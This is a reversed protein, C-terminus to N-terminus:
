DTSQRALGYPKAYLAAQSSGNRKFGFSLYDPDSGGFHKNLLSQFFELKGSEAGIQGSIWKELGIRNLEMFAHCCLDAKFRYPMLDIRENELLFDYSITISQDEFEQFEHCINNLIAKLRPAAASSVKPMIDTVSAPTPDDLGIYVRFGLMANDAIVLALGVPIGRYRGTKEMLSRFNEEQSPEAYPAFIDALRQWRSRFDGSRLNLYIKIKNKGPLLSAGLWIGGWWDSLEAPNEPFIRRVIRNIPEGAGSWNLASVLRNLTMLAHNIQEPLTLGVGGPEVLVRFSPIVPNSIKTNRNIMNSKFSYGIKTGDIFMSPRRKEYEEDPIDIISDLLTDYIFDSEPDRAIGRQEFYDRYYSILLDRISDPALM